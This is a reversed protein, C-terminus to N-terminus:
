FRENRLGHAGITRPRRGRACTHLAKTVSEIPWLGPVVRHSQSDGRPQWVYHRSKASVPVPQAVFTCLRRQPQVSTRTAPGWLSSRRGRRCTHRERSCRKTSWCYKKGWKGVPRRTLSWRFDIMYMLAVYTMSKFCKFETLWNVSHLTWTGRVLWLSESEQRRLLLRLLYCIHSSRLCTIFNNDQKNLKWNADMKVHGRSYLSALTNFMLIKFIDQSFLLFTLQIIIFVTECLLLVGPRASVDRCDGISAATLLFLVLRRFTGLMAM